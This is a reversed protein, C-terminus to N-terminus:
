NSGGWRIAPMAWYESPWLHQRHVKCPNVASAMAALLFNIRGM